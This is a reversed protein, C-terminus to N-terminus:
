WINFFDFGISLEPYPKDGMFMQQQCNLPSHYCGGIEVGFLVFKLGLKADLGVRGGIELDTAKGSYKIEGALGINMGFGGFLVIGINKSNIFRIGYEVPFSLINMTQEVSQVESVMKLYGAQVSYYTRSNVPKVVGAYLTPVRDMYDIINISTKFSMGIKKEQACVSTFACYFLMLFLAKKM